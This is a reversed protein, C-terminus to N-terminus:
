KLAFIVGAIIIAVVFALTLLWESRELKIHRINTLIFGVGIFPLAPIAAQFIGSVIVAAFGWLALLPINIRPLGMKVVAGALIAFFALDGVGLMMALGQGPQPYHLILYSTIPPLHLRGAAMHVLHNEIEQVVVASPGRAVSLIDVGAAIICVPLLHGAKEIETSLWIGLCAAATLLSFTNIVLLGDFGNYNVRSLLASLLFMVVGGIGVWFLRSPKYRRLAIEELAPLMTFIAIGGTVVSAALLAPFSMRDLGPYAKRGAVPHYIDWGVPGDM